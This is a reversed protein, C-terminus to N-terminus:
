GSPPADSTRHETPHKRIRWVLLALVAIAIVASAAGQGVSKEITAYSAGAFYGLLVVGTGWLLGGAANFAPFTLYPMRATGALAPMVARLFAVFRGLFVAAGGRRALLDRAQELRHRRSDLRHWNLVRAGLHRGVEYGVTDGIIAAVIVTVLVAVLSVHGRNAAVGALIAATEAPLVFGVFLADEVFVLSGTVLLVVWAPLTLLQTVLHGM